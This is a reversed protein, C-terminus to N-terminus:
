RRWPDPAFFDDKFGQARERRALGDGDLVGLRVLEDRYEYRVSVTAAPTSEEDFRVRRVRHDVERGIGTAAMDEAADAEAMVEGAKMRRAGPADVRKPEPVRERFFAAAVVGLNETKGLWAGYSERETTFFFKRATAEDTQWGEIVISRHPGVIWKKAERATTSKADISNLGDVALAVAVRRSTRNTLRIAYERGRLAEVYTTERAAYEAIPRGDVLVEMSFAGDTAALAPGAAVALAALLGFIPIRPFRNM